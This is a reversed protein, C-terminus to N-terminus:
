MRPPTATANPQKPTWAQSAYKKRNEEVMASQWLAQYHAEWGSSARPDDTQAGYDKLYGYGFVLAETLYLDPLYTSLYNSQNTASLPTFRITGIV